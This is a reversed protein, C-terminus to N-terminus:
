LYCLLKYEMPLEWYELDLNLFLIIKIFCFDLFKVQFWIWMKLFLVLFLIWFGLFLKFHFYSSGRFIVFDMWIIGFRMFYNPVIPKICLYFHSNRLSMVLEFCYFFALQIGLSMFNYYQYEFGEFEMGLFLIVKLQNFSSLDTKFYSFIFEMTLIFTHARHINFNPM